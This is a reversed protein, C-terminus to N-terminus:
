ATFAPERLWIAFFPNAVRHAKHTTAVLGAAELVKLASMISTYTPLAHRGRYAADFRSAPEYALAALVTRQNASLPEVASEFVGAMRRVCRSLAEDVEATGIGLKGSSEAVECVEYGLAQLFYPINESNNVISELALSDAKIGAKDFRSRLFAISEERPPKDMEIVLASQYFPRAADCFMRKLLHTKSGVYVYNVNRQRQIVSRFIRELPLNSSLRAIEQFEDFVVVVRKASTGLSEPLSLVDELTRTDPPSSFDLSLSPEGNEGVTIKLRLGRFFKSLAGLSKSARSKLTLAASAYTQLFHELSNVKMMDFCLCPQGERRLSEVVRAVVSSKGYRRPAYLLVNQGSIVARLLQHELEVRDYFEDGSVIPGFLFPNKNVGEM